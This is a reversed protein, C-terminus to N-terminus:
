KLKALDVAEAYKQKAEAPADGTVTVLVRSDVLMQIEGQENVVAQQGGIRVLKGMMAAMAPIAYLGAMQAVLPSDVMVQIRVQQGDANTYGREAQVGGGFMAAANTPATPTVSCDTNTMCWPPMTWRVFPHGGSTPVAHMEVATGKTVMWTCDSTCTGVNDVNVKGQGMVTVHLAVQQAATCSVDPAACFRDAGCVQGDACDDSGACTVVCDRLEPDYCSALALVALARILVAM